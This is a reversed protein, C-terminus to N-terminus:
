EILMRWLQYIEGAFLNFVQLLPIIKIRCAVDDYSGFLIFMLNHTYFNSPIEIISVIKIRCAVDDM